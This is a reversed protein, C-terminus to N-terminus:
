KETKDKRSDSTAAEAQKLLQFFESNTTLILRTDSGLAKKFAELTRVFSYFEDAEKIARAYSRIIEADVEGRLQNSKQKGEGEIRQVEAHTRNLLEQKLREGENEYLTAISKMLATQREFAAQRVAPVFEIKAIGVDVLEIGRGGPQGDPQGPGSTDAADSALRRRAEDNIQALIKERGYTVKGPAEAPIQQEIQEIAIGANQPDVGFTHTLERDTSRVLEALDHQTIVDRMVGRVFQAVRSEGNRVDQLRQVFTTPDNIRWIAWPVVNIKKGDATPLDPLAYASEGGWFQRTKPLKRVEQVFPLKLYLGPERREAVPKGFQLVVALEREDVTYLIAPTLIAVILIAIILLAAILRPKHVPM